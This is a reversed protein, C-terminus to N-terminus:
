ASGAGRAGRGGGGRRQLCVCEMPSRCTKITLKGDIASKRRSEIEPPGEKIEAEPPRVGTGPGDSVSGPRFLMGRPRHSHFTPLPSLVSSCIVVRANGEPPGRPNRETPAPAGEERGRGPRAPPPTSAGGPCAVSLDM